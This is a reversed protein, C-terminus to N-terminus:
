IPIDYINIDQKRILDLLLDLPGDYVQDVLVSFSSDDAAKTRAADTSPAEVTKDSRVHAVPKRWQSATRVGLIFKRRRSSREDHSRSCSAGERLGSGSHGMSAQSRICIACAATSDAGSGELPQRCGLTQMRYM